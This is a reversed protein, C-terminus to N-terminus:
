SERLLLRRLRRGLLQPWWLRRVGFRAVLRDRREPDLTEPAYRARFKLVANRDIRALLPFFLRRLWSRSCDGGQGLDIVWARGERDILANLKQHADLHVFRRAHLAGLTQDLGDLGKRLLQPDMGRQIPLGDVCQIFLAADGEHGRYRPVGPTGDLLRYHRIERRMVLRAWYRILGSKPEWAKLVVPGEPLEYRVVRAAGAGKDKLVQFPLGEVAQRTLLAGTNGVAPATAAM